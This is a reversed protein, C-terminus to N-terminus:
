KLHALAPRTLHDPCIPGRHAIAAQARRHPPARGAARAQRREGGTRSDGAACGAGARPCRRSGCSAAVARDRPVAEPAGADPRLRAKPVLAGIAKGCPGFWRQDSSKRDSANASLRRNRISATTSSKVRSHRVSTASVESDPTRTARSSSATMARRPRGAVITVSLPVSNVLM